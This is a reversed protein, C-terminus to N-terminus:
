DNIYIAAVISCVFSCGNKKITKLAEQMTAGSVLFDDVVCINDDPKINIYFANKIESKRKNHPLSKLEKTKKVKKIKPKVEKKLQKALQISLNKAYNEKSKNSQPIYVFYDINEATNNLKKSLIKSVQNFFRKSNKFKYVFEHFEDIDYFKYACIVSDINKSKM